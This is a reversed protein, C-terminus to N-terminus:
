LEEPDLPDIDGWRQTLKEKYGEFDDLRALTLNAILRVYLSDLFYISAIVLCVFIVYHYAHEGKGAVVMVMASIAFLCGIIMRAISTTSRELAYLYKDREGV